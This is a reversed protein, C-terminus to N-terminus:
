IWVCNLLVDFTMSGATRQLTAEGAASVALTLVDTGDNYLEVSDNVRVFTPGGDTNGNSAKVVALVALIATVDDAGDAIITVPTAGVGSAGIVETHGPGVGRRSRNVWQGSEYALLEGDSPATISTDSLDALNDHPVVSGLTHRDTTDHRTNNLYQTHDDDSLGSLAGHDDHPVVSGLAHRDTTDHRTVNLYQPHDDDALGVLEGHDDIVRTVNPM